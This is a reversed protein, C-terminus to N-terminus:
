SSARSAPTSVTATTTDAVSVMFWFFIRMLRSSARATARLTISRPRRLSRPAPRGRRPKRTGRRPHRPGPRTTRARRPTARRRRRSSTIASVMPAAFGRRRAHRIVPQDRARCCSRQGAVEVIRPREPQGVDVGRDLAAHTAEVRGHAPQAAAGKGGPRPAVDGRLVHGHEALPSPKSVPISM